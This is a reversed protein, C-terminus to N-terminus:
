MFFTFRPSENAKPSLKAELGNGLEIIEGLKKMINEVRKEYLAISASGGINKTCNEGGGACDIVFNGFVETPIMVMVKNGPVSSGKDTFIDAKKWGEGPATRYAITDPYVGEPCSGTTSLNGNCYPPGLEVLQAGVLHAMAPEAKAQEENPSWILVGYRYQVAQKLPNEPPLNAKAENARSAAILLDDAKSRALHEKVMLQLNAVETYFEM